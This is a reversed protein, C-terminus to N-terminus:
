GALIRSNQRTIAHNETSIIASYTATKGQWSSPSQPDGQKWECLPLINGFSFICLGSLSIGFLLILNWGCYPAEKYSYSRKEQKNAHRICPIAGKAQKWREPLGEAGKRWKGCGGPGIQARMVAFSDCPHLFSGWSVVVWPPAKEVRFDWGWRLVNRCSVWRPVFNHSFPWLTFIKRWSADPTVLRSDWLTRGRKKTTYIGRECSIEMHVFVHVVKNTLQQETSVRKDASDRLFGGTPRCLSNQRGSTPRRTALM